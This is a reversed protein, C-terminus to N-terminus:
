DDSTGGEPQGDQLQLRREIREVRNRLEDVHDNVRIQGHVLGALHHEVAALRENTQRQGHKLDHMDKRMERLLNLVVNDPEETM